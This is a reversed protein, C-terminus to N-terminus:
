HVGWTGPPPFVPGATGGMDRVATVGHAIHLPFDVTRSVTHVHMDWLGPILFRGSGDVIRATRSLRVRRSPAVTVIRNGRIVVTQEPLVGGSEVDVLTVRTLAWEEAGGVSVPQAHTCSLLCTLLILSHPRM